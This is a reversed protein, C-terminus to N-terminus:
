KNEFREAAIAQTIKNVFDGEICNAAVELANYVAINNSSGHSIISIGKIGVLPAGGQENPDLVKKISKLGPMILAAGLKRLPNITLEKKIMGLLVAATGEITKLAVNGTFGDTVMVDYNGAPIDRGELNGIFNLKGEALLKHAAVVIETGKHEETGNSLLAIKPNEIGMKQKAYVNGMIAFQLLMEPTCATNAGMDVYLKDGKPTPIIGIIAPRSIGKIRGLLLNAAVMQAGTSGSSVIADAEKDKVLKTALWISSDKKSLLNEVAEDMGIVSGALCTSINSPLPPLTNLAETTGVLIYHREPNKEGAMLAGKIIEQPAYDGGMIDVAIRM